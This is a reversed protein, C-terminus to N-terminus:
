THGLFERLEAVQAHVLSMKKESIWTAPFFYERSKALVKVGRRSHLDNADSDYDQHLDVSRRTGSPLVILIRTGEVSAFEDELFSRLFEIDVGM